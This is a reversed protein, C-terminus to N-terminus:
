FPGEIVEGTDCSRRTALAVSLALRAEEGTCTPPQAGRVTRAFAAIEEEIAAAFSDRAPTALPRPAQGAQYLVLSPANSPTGEGHLGHLAFNEPSYHYLVSGQEALLRAGIELPDGPLIFSSEISAGRGDAYRLTAVLHNWAGAGGDRDGAAAGGQAGAPSSGPTAGAPAQGPDGASAQPPEASRLGCAFVSSPPGFLWCIYDIDHVQLDLVAGGSRAADARWGERGQTAGLVGTLRRAAFWRGAGLDGSTYLEHLQRYEPWFRVVHAVMLLVGARRAGAIMADADELTLALPKECLVHKGAAFAREAYARHLHNPVCLDVAEVAPDALLADYSPYFQAGTRAAVARARRPDRGAAVALTLGAALAGDAHLEAMDGIGVLGLRLAAM